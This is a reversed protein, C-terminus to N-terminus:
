KGLKEKLVKLAQSMRKEVAKVSVSLREAIEKSTKHLALLRIIDRERPSIGQALM